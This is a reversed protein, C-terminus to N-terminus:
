DAMWAGNVGYHLLQGDHRVPHGAPLPEGELVGVSSCWEDIVDTVERGFTPASKRAALVGRQYLYVVLGRVLGSRSLWGVQDLDRLTASRTVTEGHNGVELRVEAVVFTYRSPGGHGYPTSPGGESAPRWRAPQVKPSLAEARRRLGDDGTAEALVWMAVPEDPNVDLARRAADTVAEGDYGPVWRRSFLLALGSAAGGNAPDLVLAREYLQRAEEARRRQDVELASIHSALDPDLGADSEEGDEDAGFDEDDDLDEDDDWREAASSALVDGIQDCQSSLLGALLNVALADDPRASVAQRLWREAPSPYGPEPPTDEWSMVLLLHGLDRAAQPDQSAAELLVDAADRYRRASVL